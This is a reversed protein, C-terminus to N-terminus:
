LKIEGERGSKTIMLLGIFFIVSFLLTLVPWADAAWIFSLLMIPVIFILTIVVLVPLPLAENKIDLLLPAIIFIALVTVLLRFALALSGSLAPDFIDPTYFYWFKVTFNNFPPESPKLGPLIEPLLASLIIQLVVAMIFFSFIDDYEKSKRYILIMDRMLCFVWLIFLIIYTYIISTNGFLEVGWIFNVPLLAVLYALYRYRENRKFIDFFLFVGYLLMFTILVILGNTDLAM